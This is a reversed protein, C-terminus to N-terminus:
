DCFRFAVNGVKATVLAYGDTDARYSINGTQGGGYRHRVVVTEGVPPRAGRVGDGFRIAGTASDLVYIRHDPEVGDFTSVQSWLAGGVELEIKGTSLDGTTSSFRPLKLVDLTKSHLASGDCSVVVKADCDHDTASSAGLLRSLLVLAKRFMKVPQQGFGRCWCALITFYALM